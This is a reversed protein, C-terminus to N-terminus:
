VRHLWKDNRVKAGVRIPQLRDPQMNLLTVMTAEDVEAARTHWDDVKQCWITVRDYQKTQICFTAPRKGVRLSIGSTLEVAWEGDM